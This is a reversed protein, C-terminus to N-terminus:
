LIRLLHVVILLRFHFQQFIWTKKTWTFPVEKSGNQNLSGRWFSCCSLLPINAGISSGGFSFNETSRSWAISTSIPLPRDMRTLHVPAIVISVPSVDICLQGLPQEQHQLHPQRFVQPAAGKAQGPTLLRSGRRGPRRLVASHGCSGSQQNPASATAGPRHECGTIAAGRQWWPLYIEAM